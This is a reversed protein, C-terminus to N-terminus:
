PAELFYVANDMLCEIRNLSERELGLCVMRMKTVRWQCGFHIAYILLPDFPDNRFIPEEGEM